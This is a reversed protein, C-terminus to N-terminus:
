REMSMLCVNKLWGLLRLHIHLTDWSIKLKHSKNQINRLWNLIYLQQFDVSIFCACVAIEDKKTSTSPTPVSPLENRKFLGSLWDTLWRGGEAGGWKQRKWTTATTTTTTTYNVVFASLRLQAFFSLDSSSSVFLSPMFLALPRVLSSYHLFALITRGDVLPNTEQNWICLLTFIIRWLAIKPNAPFTKVCSQLHTQTQLCISYAPEPLSTGEYLITLFPHIKVM